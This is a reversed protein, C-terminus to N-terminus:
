IVPYARYLKRTFYFILLSFHEGASKSNLIGMSQLDRLVVNESYNVGTCMSEQMTYAYKCVVDTYFYNRQPFELCGHNQCSHLFLYM